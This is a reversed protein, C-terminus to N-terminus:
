ASAVRATVDDPRLPPGVEATATTSGGFGIRRDPASRVRRWLEEARGSGVAWGLVFGLILALKFKSM